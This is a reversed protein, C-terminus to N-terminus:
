WDHNERILKKVQRALRKKNKNYKKLTMLRNGSSQRKTYTIGDLHDCEHQLVGALPWDISYSKVEGDLNSYIVKVDIARKVLGKTEPFSLCQEVWKQNTDGHELVPNILIWYNENYEAPDPNMSKIQVPNIVIVRKNIGIQPAALGIGMNVNCTDILDKALDKLESDFKAIPSCMTTLISNPWTIIKRKM